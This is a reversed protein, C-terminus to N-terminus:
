VVIPVHEKVRRNVGVNVGKDIKHWLSHTVGSYVTLRIIHLTTVQVVQM